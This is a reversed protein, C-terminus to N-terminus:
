CSSLLEVKFPARCISGERSSDTRLHAVTSATIIMDVITMGMLGNIVLINFYLRYFYLIIM